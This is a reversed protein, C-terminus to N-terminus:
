IQLRVDPDSTSVKLGDHCHKVPTRTTVAHMASSPSQDCMPHTHTHRIQLFTEPSDTTQMLNQSQGSHGRQM